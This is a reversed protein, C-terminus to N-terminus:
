SKNNGNSKIKNIMKLIKKKCNKANLAQVYICKPKQVVSSKYVPKLAKDLFVKNEIDAPKIELTELNFESLTHGPVKRVRGIM